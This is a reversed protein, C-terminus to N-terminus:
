LHSTSRLQFSLPLPVPQAVSSTRLPVLLFSRFLYELATLSLDSYLFSIKVGRLDYTDNPQKMQTRVKMQLIEPWQPTNSMKTDNLESLPFTPHPSPYIIIFLILVSLRSSWWTKRHSTIKYSFLILFKNGDFTSFSISPWKWIITAYWVSKM